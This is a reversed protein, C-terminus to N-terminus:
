QYYQPYDGIDYFDDEKRFKAYAWNVIAWVLLILTVSLGLFIGIGKAQTILGIGFIKLLFILCGGLLSKKPLKWLIATIILLNIVAFEVIDGRSLTRDLVSCIQVQFYGVSYLLFLKLLNKM